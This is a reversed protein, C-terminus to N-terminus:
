RRTDDFIRIAVFGDRDAYRFMINLFTEVTSRDAILGDKAHREPGLEGTYPAGFGASETAEAASDCQSEMDRVKDVQYDSHDDPEFHDDHESENDDAHDEDDGAGEDEHPNSDDLPEPGNMRTQRGAVGLKTQIHASIEFFGDGATSRAIFGLQND